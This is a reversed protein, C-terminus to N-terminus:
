KMVGFFPSSLAYHLLVVAGEGPRDAASVWSWTDQAAALEMLNSRLTAPMAGRFFRVNLQEIYDKPSRAYSESLSAIQCGAAAGVDSRMLADQLQNLRATLEVTNLLKQEPALLNSGPARDTPLYFSFVTQASFPFQVRPQAMGGDPYALPKTCGLGRLTAMFWLWPERLKGFNRTDAGPIDGRRAESDLLVAKVVATMDGTIGKGNDRFVASVRSIYQPSPNSTVLHQILRLSVFPAINPHKMLMAVVADLEEPASKGAPFTTGMVSKVARDHAASWTEPVMPKGANIWNQGLNVDSPAFRWGTLARAMEEVDEQDYTELPKGNADRKTTGDANLQVVGLTFLQMVERAYNENPACSPCQDSKPRNQVNDLFNGMVAHVSLARLFEGYNGLAHRQLLNWYEAQGYANTKNAPVFQLLAWAVRQRLQDDGTLPFQILSSSIWRWARDREAQNNDNFDIVWSPAQMQSVPLSAQYNIWGELGRGQMDQRLTPTAGFSVQEAMRAAAYNSVPAVQRSNNVQGVSASPATSETLAFSPIVSAANSVALGFSQLISAANSVTITSSQSVSAANSETPAVSQLALPAISEALAFSKLATPENPDSTNKGGCAGLATLTLLVLSVTLLSRSFKM